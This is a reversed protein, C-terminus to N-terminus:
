YFGVSKNHRFKEFTKVNQRVFTELTDRNSAQAPVFKAAHKFL